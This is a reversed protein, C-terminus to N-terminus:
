NNFRSFKYATFDLNKRLKSIEDATELSEAKAIEDFKNYIDQIANDNNKNNFKQIIQESSQHESDTDLNNMWESNMLMM